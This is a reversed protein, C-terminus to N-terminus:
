DGMALLLVIFALGALCLTLLAAGSVAFLLNSVLRKQTERDMM